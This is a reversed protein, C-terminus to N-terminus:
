LKKGTVLDFGVAKELKYIETSRTYDPHDIFRKVNQRNNRFWKEDEQKM